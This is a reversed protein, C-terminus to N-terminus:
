TLGPVADLPEVIDYAPEVFPQHSNRMGFIFYVRLRLGRLSGAASPLLLLRRAFDFRSYGDTGRCCMEARELVGAYSAVSHWCRIRQGVVAENVATIIIDASM